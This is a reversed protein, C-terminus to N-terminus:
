DMRKGIAIRMSEVGAGFGGSAFGTVFGGGETSRAVAVAVIDRTNTDNGLGMAQRAENCDPSRLGHITVTSEGLLIHFGAGSAMLYISPIRNTDFAMLSSAGIVLRDRREEVSPSATLRQMMATNEPHSLVTGM